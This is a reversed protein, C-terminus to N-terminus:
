KKTNGHNGGNTIIIKPNIMLKIELLKYGDTIYETTPPAIIVLGCKSCFIETTKEDKTTECSGCEPCLKIKIIKQEM